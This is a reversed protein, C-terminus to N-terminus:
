TAPGPEQGAAPAAVDQAGRLTLPLLGTTNGRDSKPDLLLAEFVLEAAGIMLLNAGVSSTAPNQVEAAALIRVWWRSLAPQTM